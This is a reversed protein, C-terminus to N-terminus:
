FMTRAAICLGRDTLSFGGLWVLAQPSCHYLANNTRNIMYFAKLAFLDHPDEGKVYLFM